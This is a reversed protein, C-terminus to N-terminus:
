PANSTIIKDLLVNLYPIIGEFQFFFTQVFETKPALTPVLYDFVKILEMRQVKDLKSDSLNRVVSTPFDVYDFDVEDVFEGIYVPEEEVEFGDCVALSIFFVALMVALLQIYIKCM